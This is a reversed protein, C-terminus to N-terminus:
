SGRGRVGRKPNDGCLQSRWCLLPEPGPISLVQLLFVPSSHLCWSLCGGEWCQVSIRTGTRFVKHCLFVRVSTPKLAQVVPVQQLPPQPCTHPCSQRCPTGTIAGVLGTDPSQSRRPVALRTGEGEM